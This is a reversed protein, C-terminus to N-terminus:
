KDKKLIQVYIIKNIEVIESNQNQHCISNQNNIIDKNQTDFIYEKGEVKNNKLVNDIIINEFDQNSNNKEKEQKERLYSVFFSKYPLLFILRKWADFFFKKFSNM